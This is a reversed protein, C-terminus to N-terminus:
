QIESDATFARLLATAIVGATVARLVQEGLSVAQAGAATFLALEEDSIGGEPGIVCWVQAAARIEPVRALPLTATEHCLLVPTGTATLERIEAALAQNQVVDSVQPVHARRSQKAAERVSAQWKQRAKEGREGQWKAISRQAQWPVIRDVGVETMTAVADEAGTKVLGQVITIGPRASAEDVISEIKVELENGRVTAIRTRMRRGAGDVIEILDGPARRQVAAAHHGERGTLVYTDGAQLTALQEPQALFVPATM